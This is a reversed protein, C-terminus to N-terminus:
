KIQVITKESQQGQKSLISKLPANLDCEFHLAAAMARWRAIVIENCLEFSCWSASFNCVVHMTRTASILGMYAALTTIKTNGKIVTREFVKGQFGLYWRVRPIVRARIEPLSISM